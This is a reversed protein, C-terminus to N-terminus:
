CVLIVKWGRAVAPYTYTVVQVFAAKEITHPRSSVPSQNFSIAYPPLAYNVTCISITIIPKLLVLTQVYFSFPIFSIFFFYGFSVRFIKPSHRIYCPHTPLYKTPQNNFTLRTIYTRALYTRTYPLSIISLCISIFFSVGFGSVRAM